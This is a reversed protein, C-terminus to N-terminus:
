RTLEQQGETGVLPPQIRAAEHFKNYRPVDRIRSVWADPSPDSLATIPDNFATRAHSSDAAPNLFRRGSNSFPNNGSDNIAEVGKYTGYMGAAGVAARRVGPHEAAARPASLASHVIKEGPGYTHWYARRREPSTAFELGSGIQGLPTRSKAANANMEMLFSGGFTPSQAATRHLSNFDAGPGAYQGGSWPKLNYQLGHGLEHRMVSKAEPTGKLGIAAAHDTLSNYQGLYSPSALEGSNRAGKLVRYDPTGPMFLEESNRLRSYRDPNTTAGRVFTNKTGSGYSRSTSELAGRVASYGPYFTNKIYRPTIPSKIAASALSNAGSYLGKGVFKAAHVAPIIDAFDSSAGELGHGQALQQNIKADYADRKAQREANQAEPPLAAFRKKEDEQRKKEDEQLRLNNAANAPAWKAQLEASRRDVDAVSGPKPPYSKFQNPAFQGPMIAADASKLLSALKSISSENPALFGRGGELAKFLRRKQDEAMDSIAEEETRIRNAPMMGEYMPSTGLLHTAARSPVTGKLGGKNIQLRFRDALNQKFYKPEHMLSDSPDYKNSMRYALHHIANLREIEKNSLNIPVTEQPIDVPAFTVPHGTKAKVRASLQDFVEQRKAEDGDFSLEVDGTDENNVGIGPLGQEELLSHYLKRLGVGQVKEGSATYVGALKSVSNDETVRKKKCGVPIYFGLQPSTELGYSKRIDELDDSKISIAWLKDYEGTAPLEVIPGLTYHYSHGRETIHSVGGLKDIEEKTMVKIASETRNNRVVFEAGPEDLADFVGKILSSPVTLELNGNPGAQLRGALAHVSTHEAKKNMYGHAQGFSFMEANLAKLWEAGKAIGLSLPPITM